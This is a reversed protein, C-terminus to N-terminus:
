RQVVEATSYSEDQLVIPLSVDPRTRWVKDVYEIILATSSVHTAPVGVVVAQVGYMEAYKQVKNFVQAHNNETRHIVGLPSAITNGPDSVAVGIVSKGVDLALLPRKPKWQRVLQMMTWFRSEDVVRQKKRKMRKGKRFPLPEGYEDVISEDYGNNKKMDVFANYSQEANSGGSSSNSGGSETMQLLGTLERGASTTGSNHADGDRSFRFPNEGLASDSYSCGVVSLRTRTSIVNSRQLHTHLTMNMWTSRTRGAITAVYHHM